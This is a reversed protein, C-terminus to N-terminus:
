KTATVTVKVNENYWSDEDEGSAGYRIYISDSLSDISVNLTITETFWSDVGSGGHDFKHDGILDKDTTSTPNNYLFIYQYGDNKECIDLSIKISFYRYGAQMLDAVPFDSGIRVVDLQQHERGDDTITVRESRVNYEVSGKDEIWKAYATRKEKQAPLVYYPNIYDSYREDSYWGVFIYGEKEPITNVLQLFATLEENAEDDKNSNDVPGGIPTVEVLVEKNHWTDDNKGSAGYRIYLDTEMEALPIVSEVTVLGWNTDVATKGYDFRHASLLNPDGDEEAGFVIKDLKDLAGESDSRNCQTNKYFFFYQYGDDVECILATLKIKFSTYGARKLDTISYDGSLGVCDLQQNDRGSDTIMTSERRVTYTNITPVDIWKAYATRKEQQELTINAPNIYSSFASDSYWGAFVYGAKTPKANVIAELKTDKDVTLEMTGGNLSVSIPPQKEKSSCSALCLLAAICTILLILKRM